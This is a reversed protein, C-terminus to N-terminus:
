GQLQLKQGEMQTQQQRLGLEQQALARNAAEQREQAQAKNALGVGTGLTGLPQSWGAGVNGAYEFIPALRRMTALFGTGGQSTNPPNQLPSTSTQPYRGVGTTGSYAGPVNSSVGPPLQESWPQSTESQAAPSRVKLGSPLTQTGSGSQTMEPDRTWLPVDAPAAENQDNMAVEDSPDIDGGDKYHMPPTPFQRLAPPPVSQLPIAPLNKVMPQPPPALNKGLLSLLTPQPQNNGQQQPANRAAQRRQIEAAVLYGPVTSPQQTEAQLASDPMGRLEAAIQDLTM